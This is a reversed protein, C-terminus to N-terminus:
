KGRIEWLEWLEGAAEAEEWLRQGLRRRQREAEPRGPQQWRGRQGVWGAALLLCGAEARPREGGFLQFGCCLFAEVASFLLQICRITRRAACFHASSLVKAASRCLSSQLLTTADYCALKVALCWCEGWLRLVPIYLTEILRCMSYHTAYTCMYRCHLPALLSNIFPEGSCYWKRNRNQELM